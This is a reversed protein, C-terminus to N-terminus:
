SFRRGLWDLLLANVEAPREQQTWHGSGKVLHVELDPIHDEMGEALKPPLVPDREATIMLVPLELKPPAEGPPQFRAMDEWNAIMNRYYNIPGRFGTRRFAATYLELEEDSLFCEGPWQEEPREILKQFDLRPLGTEGEGTGGLGEADGDEGRWRYFFRMSREIDAEWLAEAPGEEQFFTIYNQAGYMANMASIPDIPLRARYPVNLAILGALREPCYFPLSWAVLAGWDHGVAVAREIGLADLLGAFDASLEKMHYASLPEPFDSAGYGRGDYAVTRYGAAALAPLQHRWSLATEPFGHLLVVPPKDSDEPGAEYIALKIGNAEVIRPNRFPELIDANM